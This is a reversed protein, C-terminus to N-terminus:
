RDDDTLLGYAADRMLAHRFRYTPESAAADQRHEVIEHEALSAIWGDVNEGAWAAGLVARVGGTSFSDGFVSAAELVRRATLDLRAIRSQLMALVTRPVEDREGAAASRILEELYLANGASREVIRAVVGAPTDQGLVQRVLKEGAKRSLPRLSITHLARSFLRPFSETVEPRAFGLVLFPQDPLASIAASVLDVTLADGWHLDELVLVVPAAACEARLFEILAQRIQNGMTRGDQRAARLTPSDDDPFPAGSLEGLFPAARRAQEPPLHAAVRRALARRRAELADREDIGTLGRIAQGLLPHAAGGHVVQGRASMLTVREGREKVRRVFEHRLRSKGAGPPGTVLLARSGPGEMCGQLAAELVALELDRGVCPTPKGLLPRAEDVGSGPDGPDLAFAGTALQTTGLRLGLLGATVDDLVVHEHGTATGQHQALLEGARDLAEGLSRGESVLGKGTTLVVLAGPWRAKIQAACHAAQVAQDTAAGRSQTLTAVLAGRALVDVHAGAAVLLDRLSLLEVRHRELEEPVMTPEADLPAHPAGIVVSVLRLDDGRGFGAAPGSPTPPAGELASAELPDLLAALETADRPRLAPDKRLMRAVIAEIAGPVDPRLRCLVPPEEFLIRALSAVLHPAAFPPAGTLCEFLVSGLAFIDATPGIDLQGRVQEPAMYQPSGVIAGSATIVQSRTSPRAIGFDLLIVRRIDGDCLFINSPKIDRHVIGHAHAAALPAAVGRVLHIAEAV